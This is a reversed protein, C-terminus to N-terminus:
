IKNILFSARNMPVYHKINNMKKKLGMNYKKNKNEKLNICPNKYSKNEKLKHTRNMNTDSNKKRLKSPINDYINFQTISTSEYNDNIINSNSQSLKHTKNLRNIESTQINKISNKKNKNTININKNKSKSKKIVKETIEDYINEKKNLSYYDNINTENRCFNHRYLSNIYNNIKIDLETKPQNLQFSSSNKNINKTDIDNKHSFSSFLKLNTYTQNNKPSFINYTTSINNNTMTLYNTLNNNSNKRKSLNTLNKVDEKKSLLIRKLIYVLNNKLSFIEQKYEEIQKKQKDLQIFLRSILKSVLEDKLQNQLNNYMSKFQAEGGEIIKQINDIKKPKKKKTNSIIM